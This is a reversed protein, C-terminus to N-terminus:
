GYHNYRKTITIRIQASSSVITDIIISFFLFLPSLSMLQFSAGAGVRSDNNYISVFHGSIPRINREIFCIARTSRFKGRNVSARFSEEWARSDFESLPQNPFPNNFPNNSRKRTPRCCQGRCFFPPRTDRRRIIKRCIGRAHVCLRKENVGSRSTANRKKLTISSFHFRYKTENGCEFM